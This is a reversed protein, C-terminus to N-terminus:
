ERFSCFRLDVQLEDRVDEGPALALPEAAVLGAGEEEALGEDQVDGARERAGDRADGDDRALRAAALVEPEPRDRVEVRAAAGERAELRREDVARALADPAPQEEGRAVEDPDVGGPDALEGLPQARTGRARDGEAALPPLGERGEVV